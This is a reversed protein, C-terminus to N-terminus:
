LINRVFNRAVPNESEQEEFYAALSHRTSFCFIKAAMWPNYVDNSVGGTHQVWIIAWSMKTWCRAKAWSSRTRRDLAATVVLLQCPINARGDIERRLFKCRACNLFKAKPASIQLFSVVAPSWSSPALHCTDLNKLDLKAILRFGSM